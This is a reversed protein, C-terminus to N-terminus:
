GSPNRQRSLREQLRQKGSEQGNKETHQEATKHDTLLNRERRHVGSNEASQGEGGGGVRREQM